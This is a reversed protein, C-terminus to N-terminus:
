VSDEEEIYDAIVLVDFIVDVDENLIETIHEISITDISDESVEEIARNTFRLFSKAADRNQSGNKIYNLTKRINGLMNRDKTNYEFKVNRKQGVIKTDTDESNDSATKTHAPTTTTIAM